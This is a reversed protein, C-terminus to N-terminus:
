LIAEKLKASLFQLLQKGYEARDSEGSAAYIQKGINWYATVMSYNIAANVQRQAAVVYSRVAMYTEQNVADGNDHLKIADEAMQDGDKKVEGVAGAQM